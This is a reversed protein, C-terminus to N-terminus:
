VRERCSARGIEMWRTMAPYHREIIRTDGYMRYITWPVIVGADAWGPSGLKTKSIAPARDPFVGNPFQADDLDVMWKTFFAAVDMNLAATM